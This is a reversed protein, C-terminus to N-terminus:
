NQKDNNPIYILKKICFRMPIMVVDGEKKNSNCVILYAIVHPFSPGGIRMVSNCVGKQHDHPMVNTDMCILPDIIVQIKFWM